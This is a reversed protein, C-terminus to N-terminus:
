KTCYRYEILWHKIQDLIDDMSTPSSLTEARVEASQFLFIIRNFELEPDDRIRVSPICCTYEANVSERMETLRPVFEPSAILNILSLSAHVEFRDLQKYREGSLNTEVTPDLIPRLENISNTRLALEGTQLSDWKQIPLFRGQEQYHLNNFHIFDANKVEDLLGPLDM